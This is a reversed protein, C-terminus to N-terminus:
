SYMRLAISRSLQNSDEENLNKLRSHRSLLDNQVRKIAAYDQMRPTLKLSLSAKDVDEGGAKITEEELQDFIRKTAQMLKEELLVINLYTFSLPLPVSSKLFYDILIIIHAQSDFEVNFHSNVYRISDTMKIFEGQLVEVARDKLNQDSQELNAIATIVKEASVSCTLLYEGQPTITVKSFCSHGGLFVAADMEEQRPYKLQDFVYKPIPQIMLSSANVLDQPLIQNPLPMSWEEAANNM